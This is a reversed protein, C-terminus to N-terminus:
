HKKGKSVVLNVKGGHKLHKEPKPKQPGREPPRRLGYFLLTNVSRM